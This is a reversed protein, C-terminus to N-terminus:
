DSTITGLFEGMWGPVADAYQSRVPEELSTVVRHWTLARCVMGLPQALEYAELLAARPAFTQWAELYIERLRVVEPANAALGLTHAAGRLMVVLTFFPHAACSEGWDTLTYRGDRVFINGDHFDDHHLTEPLGFTALLGCDTALRPTLDRLRQYAEASLGHPQGIQLARTDALLREYQAPLTALRRDLAGLAHLEPLRAAMEAQLGAYLPLVRHWRRLHGDERILRRLALGSERMLLWGRAPDAALVEPMCDPRWGALAVTLAPEHGLAPAVAKFYLDGTSAPVRLVTSWPRVHPQEIPGSPSLGYQELQHGIWQSASEFWNAQTWPLATSTEASNM